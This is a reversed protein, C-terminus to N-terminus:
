ARPTALVPPCCRPRQTSQKPLLPRGEPNAKTPAGGRLRMVDIADEIIGADLRSASRRRTSPESQQLSGIDNSRRRSVARRRMTTSGIPSINPWPAPKRIRRCPRKVNTSASPAWRRPRTLNRPSVLNLHEHGEYDSQHRKSSGGTQKLDKTTTRKM